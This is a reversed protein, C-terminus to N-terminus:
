AFVEKAIKLVQQRMEEAASAMYGKGTQGATWWYTGDDHLYWWGDDGHNNVDYEWNSPLEGQYSGDGVVGTGFEVFAAHDNDAIVLYEAEGVRQFSISSALEGTVYRGEIKSVAASVGIEALRRCLEDCKSEIGDRYKQLEQIMAKLSETSLTAKTRIM